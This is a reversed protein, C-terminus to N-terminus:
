WLVVAAGRAPNRIGISRFGCSTPDALRSARSYELLWRVALVLRYKPSLKLGCGAAAITGSGAYAIIHEVTRVTDVKESLSLSPV